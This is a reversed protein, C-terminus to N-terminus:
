TSARSQGFPGTQGCQPSVPRMPRSFVALGSAEAEVLAIGALLWEGYSHPSNELVAVQWQMQPQLNNMQETAALLADSSTLDLTHEIAAHFGSPESTM